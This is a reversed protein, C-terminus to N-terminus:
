RSQRYYALQRRASPTNRDDSLAALRPRNALERTGRAESGTRLQPITRRPKGFCEVAHRATDFAHDREAPAAQV